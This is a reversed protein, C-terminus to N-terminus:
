FPQPIGPPRVGPVGGGLLRISTVSIIRRGPREPGRGLRMMGTVTAASGNAQRGPARAPAFDLDYTSGDTATLTVGTTEGGIAVAGVPLRGTVTIAGAGPVGPGLQVTTNLMQDTALDFFKLRLRGRSAALARRLDDPAIVRTSSAALIIDGGKLGARQAPSAPVVGVVELGALRVGPIIEVERTRSDTLGLFPVQPVIGTPPIPLIMQGSAVTVCSFVLLGCIPGVLLWTRM